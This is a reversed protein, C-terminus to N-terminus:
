PNRLEIVTRQDLGLEKFDDGWYKQVLEAILGNDRAKILAKEIVPKLTKAAPTLFFWYDSEYTFILATRIMSLKNSSNRSYRWCSTM